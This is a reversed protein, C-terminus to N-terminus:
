KIKGRERERRVLGVCCKDGLLILLAAAAAATYM